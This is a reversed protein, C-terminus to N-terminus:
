KDLIQLAKNEFLGSVRACRDKVDHMIGTRPRRVVDNGINALDCLEYCRARILRYDDLVVRVVPGM